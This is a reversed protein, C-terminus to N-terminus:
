KVPIIWVQWSMFQTGAPIVYMHTHGVGGTSPTDVDSAGHPPLLSAPGHAGTQTGPADTTVGMHSLPSWADYLRSELKQTKNKTKETKQGNWM